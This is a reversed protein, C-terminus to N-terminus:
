KRKKGLGLNGKLKKGKKGLCPIPTQNDNDDKLQKTTSTVPSSIKQYVKSSNMLQQQIKPSFVVTM